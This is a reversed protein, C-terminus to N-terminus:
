ESLLKNFNKKLSHMYRETSGRELDKKLSLLYWHNPMIQLGREVYVQAMEYNFERFAEDGLTAYREAIDSFGERVLPSEPDLRLIENYYFYASDDEPTTLKDEALRQGARTALEFVLRTREEEIRKRITLLRQYDPAVSLGSDVYGDAESLRNSSLAEEALVSYREGILRLGDKAGKDEPDLRLIEQYYRYASDQAPQLLRNDRLAAAAKKHLEAVADLQGEESQAAADFSLTQRAIDVPQPQREPELFPAAGQADMTAVAPGDGPLPATTQSRDVSVTKVKKHQEKFVPLKTVESPIAADVEPKGQHEPARVAEEPRDAGGTHAEEGPPRGTQAAAPNASSVVEVADATLRAKPEVAEQVQEAETPAQEPADAPQQASQGSVATQEGIPQPPGAEPPIAVIREQASKFFTLVAVLGVLCVLGILVVRWRWQGKLLASRYHQL